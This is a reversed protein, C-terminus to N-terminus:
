VAPRRGRDAAVERYVHELRRLSRGLAFNKTIEGRAARGIEPGAAVARRLAGGLSAVDGLRYTFGSIGDAVFEAPGGEDPVVVVREKAMAEAVALGFTEPVESANVVLDTADLLPGVDEHFGTFVVRVRDGTRAAAAIVEARYGPRDEPGSVGEAGVCLLVLRRSLAPAVDALARLLLLHGKLPVLRGFLGVVCEDEALGQAERVRRRREADPPPFRSLTVGLPLLEVRRTNFWSGAQIRRMYASPVMVREAPAVPCLGQLRQTGIPGHNFCIVPRGTLMAAPGGVLHGSLKSSHVLDIRQRVIERATAWVQGLFRRQRWAPLRTVAVGAQALWDALPGDGGVVAAAAVGPGHQTIWDFTIRESGGIQATPLVYLVRLPADSDPEPRSNM